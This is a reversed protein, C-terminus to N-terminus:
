RGRRGQRRSARSPGAYLALLSPLSFLVLVIGIILFDDLLRNFRCSFVLSAITVGIYLLNSDVAAGRKLTYGLSARSTGLGKSQAAVWACAYTIFLDARGAKVQVTSSFTLMARAWQYSDADDIDNSKIPCCVPVSRQRM